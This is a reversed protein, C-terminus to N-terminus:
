FNLVIGLSVMDLGNPGVIGSANTEDSQDSGFHNYELRLTVITEPQRYGIGFGYVLDYDARSKYLIKETLLETRSRGYGIRGFVEFLSGIPVIGVVAGFGTSTNIGLDGETTDAWTGGGGAYGLEAAVYPNFRYGVAIKGGFGPEIDAQCNACQQMAVGLGADLYVGSNGAQSLASFGCLIAVLLPRIISNM